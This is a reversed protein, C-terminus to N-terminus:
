NSNVHRLRGGLEITQKRARLLEDAEHLLPQNAELLLYASRARKQEWSWRVGSILSALGGVGTLVPGFVQWYQFLLQEPAKTIALAIILIGSAFVILSFIFIGRLLLSPKTLLQLRQSLIEAEAVLQELSPETQDDETEHSLQLLSRVIPEIHKAAPEGEILLAQYTQLDPPIERVSEPEHIVPIISFAPNEVKRVNIARLERYLWPEDSYHSWREKGKDTYPEMVVVAGDAREIENFIRDRWNEGPAIDQPAYFTDIDFDRLTDSILRALSSSAQALVVIHPRAHTTVM